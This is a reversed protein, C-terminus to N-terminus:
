KNCIDIPQIGQAEATKAIKQGHEDTGTLFYTRRGFVRHWRALVDATLAEYAHGIHPLGNTYSIATTVYYKEKGKLKETGPFNTNGVLDPLPGTDDRPLTAAAPKAAAPKAAPVDKVGEKGAAKKPPPPPKPASMPESKPAPASPLPCLAAYGLASGLEDFSVNSMSM